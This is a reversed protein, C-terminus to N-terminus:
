KAKFPGDDTLIVGNETAYQDWLALLAKTKEPEQKSLDKTEGPDNKINFLEWEGTGGATKLINCLKWDGQRVMRNGFLEEGIWDKDTRVAETNGTLLPTLSKGRLPALKTDTVSPHKAGALELFTPVLDTVHMIAPKIAGANKVGAGAIIVPSHIGGESTWAKYFRFPTSGVQAWAAGYDTASGKRGWNEPRTDFHEFFWKKAEENFVTAVLAGLEVPEAGNDSLFVVLTNEYQGTKKLHDILRGIHFDMNALMAAYVEMRRASLKKQEATLTDWAPVSPVRPSAVTDKGVIGLEKMRALREERIADYGKDYVGKYKELWDDPASLPSHVAQFSLYAFFPKGDAQHEENCKIIFDTYAESSFHNDPLKELPKGNLTFNLHPHAPNPYTMDSWNSGGGQLLTFDREFGMAAPWQSPEYGMHSKGAWYTHYGAEKLVKAVPVVRKNLYGEYGPKGKQKPGALEDMNGFGAVHHDCGSLLMSRTPSCTPGVYFNTARIGSKALADIHPTQVEGGFCTIDSYGMDDAIILLINPKKEAAHLASVTLLGACLRTLLQSLRILKMAIPNQSKVKNTRM